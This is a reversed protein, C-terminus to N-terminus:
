TKDDIFTLLYEAGGLSKTNMKGCVDSHVLELPKEARKAGDKPFSSRHLKGQACPECFLKQKSVRYNFGSVLKDSSLKALSQMGLHGYRAHWVDSQTESATNVQECSDECELYYLSGVRKATAILKNKQNRICCRQEDFSAVKGAKSAKSVSFLNVSLRPVYLTNMLKCRQTEQNPLSMTLEVTGKGVVDLSRGDGLTVKEPQTLERYDVFLEKNNCMHSTAGSDIIWCDSSRATLANGTVLAESDSESDSAKELTVSAKHKEEKSGERPKGVLDWCDRKKQLPPM